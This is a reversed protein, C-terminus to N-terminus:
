IRPEPQGCRKSGEYTVKIAVNSRLVRHRSAVEESIVTNEYGSKFKVRPLNLIHLRQALM